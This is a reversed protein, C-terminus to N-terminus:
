RDEVRWCDMSERGNRGDVGEVCIGLDFHSTDSGVSNSTSLDAAVVYTKGAFFFDCERARQNWSESKFIMRM